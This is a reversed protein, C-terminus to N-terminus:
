LNRDCICTWRQGDCMKTVRKDIARENKIKGEDDLDLKCHSQAGGVGGGGGVCVNVPQSGTSEFQVSPCSAHKMFREIIQDASCDQPCLTLLSNM